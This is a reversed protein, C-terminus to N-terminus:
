KAAWEISKVRSNSWFITNTSCAMSKTESHTSRPHWSQMRTGRSLWNESTDSKQKKKVLTQLKSNNKWNTKRICSSEFSRFSRGKSTSPKSWRCPKQGWIHWLRVTWSTISAWFNSLSTSKSRKFWFWVSRRRPKLRESCRQRQKKGGLTLEPNKIKYKETMKSSATSCALLELRRRGAMMQHSKVKHNLMLLLSQKLALILTTGAYTACASTDRGM